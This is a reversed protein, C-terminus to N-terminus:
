TPPIGSCNQWGNREPQAQTWFWSLFATGTQDPRRSVLNCPREDDGLDSPVSEFRQETTFLQQAALSVKQRCREGKLLLAKAPKLAVCRASSLFLPVVLTSLIFSLLSECIAVLLNVLKINIDHDTLSIIQSIMIRLTYRKIVNFIKEIMPQAVFSAIFPIDAVKPFSAITLCLMVICVAVFAFRLIYKLASSLYFWPTLRIKLLASSEREKGNAEYLMYYIRATGKSVGQSNLEYSTFCTPGRLGKHELIKQLIKKLDPSNVTGPNSKLIQLEKTVWAQLLQDLGWRMSKLKSLIEETKSDTANHELNVLWLWYPIITEPRLRGIRQNTPLGYAKYIYWGEDFLRKFLVDIISLLPVSEIIRYVYPIIMLFLNFITILMLHCGLARRKIALIAKASDIKQKNSENLNVKQLLPRLSRKVRLIIDSHMTQPILYGSYLGNFLSTRHTILYYDGYFHLIKEIIGECQSISLQNFQDSSPLNTDMWSTIKSYIDSGLRTKYQNNKIAYPVNCWDLVYEISSGICGPPSKYVYDDLRKQLEDGLDFWTPNTDTDTDSYVPCRLSSTHM